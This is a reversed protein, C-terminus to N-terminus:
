DRPRSAASCYVDLYQAAVVAPDLVREAFARGNRSYELNHRPDLCHEIGELLSIADMPEALFGNHEHVILDPIGGTRFGVCPTGCALAEAVTNPLNDQLSPCVFVDMAAYALALQEDDCITGLFHTPLPMPTDNRSAGFVLLQVGHRAPICALAEQLYEFGKRKDALSRVAGFGVLRTNADLGLRTRAVTRDLPRFVSLPVPNPITRISGPPIVGSEAVQKELWKSPTVIRPSAVSWCANKRNRVHQDLSRFLPNRANVAPRGGAAYELPGYHEVGLNFWEDHLTWVIPACIRSIEEIRIMESGTWHLHAIDANVANVHRHLRTPFLNASLTESSAAGCMRLIWKSTFQRGALAIYGAHGGPQRVYDRHTSKRAVLMSMEVGFDALADTIRCAAIGAGSLGDTYTVALARM